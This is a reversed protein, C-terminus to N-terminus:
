TGIYKIRADLARTDALHDRAIQVRVQGVDRRPSDWRAAGPSPEGAARLADEWPSGPSGTCRAPRM